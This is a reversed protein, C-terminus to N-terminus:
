ISDRAHFPRADPGSLGSRFHHVNWFRPSNNAMMIPAPRAIGTLFRPAVPPPPMPHPALPRGISMQPPLHMFQSRQNPMPVPLPAMPFPPLHSSIGRPPYMQHNGRPQPYPRVNVPHMNIRSQLAFKNQISNDYHNSLTKNLPSIVPNNPASDASNSDSHGFKKILERIQSPTQSVNARSSPQPIAKQNVSPFKAPQLTEKSQLRADKVLLNSPQSSQIQARTSHRPDIDSGPSPSLQPCQYSLPEGNYDFEPLDDDDLNQGPRPTLQHVPEPGFGPPVDDSLIDDNVSTPFVMRPDNDSNANSFSSPDFGPPADLDSSNNELVSEVHQDNQIAHNRSVDQVHHNEFGTGMVYTQTETTYPRSNLEEPTTPSEIIHGSVPLRKANVYEQIKTSREPTKQMFNFTVNNRRWVVCGILGDM